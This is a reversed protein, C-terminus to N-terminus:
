FADQQEVMEKEVKEPNEHYETFIGTDKHYQLFRLDVTGLSRWKIKQVHVAIVDLKYYRYTTLGQFAANWYAASGDIDFLTPVPYKHTKFDKLLKTTHAVIFPTFEKRSGMRHILNLFRGISYTRNESKRQSIELDKIPDLVFGQISNKSTYERLLSLLDDSTFEGMGIDIIEIKDNLWEIASDVEEPVMAKDGIRFPKGLLKEALDQIMYYHPFSEPSFVLWKWNQNLSLDIMIQNLLQTKGSGPLGTFVNLLGLAPRYIQSLTPLSKLNFVTTHDGEKHYKKTIESLDKIKMIKVTNEVGLSAEDMRNNLNNSMESVSKIVTEPSEGTFARDSINHCNEITKRLISKEILIKCHTEINAATAVSSVLESLYPEAGVVELQDKKRLEESVTLIDLPTGENQMAYICAWIVANQAAYFCDDTLLTHAKIAADRDTMVTGLVTREVDLAQPPIRDLNSM